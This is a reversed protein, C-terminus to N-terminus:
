SHGSCSLDVEVSPLPRVVQGVHLRHGVYLGLSQIRDALRMLLARGVQQNSVTVGRRSWKVYGRARVNPTQHPTRLHRREHVSATADLM